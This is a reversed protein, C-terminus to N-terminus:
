RGRGSPKKMMKDCKHLRKDFKKDMKKLTKVEKEGRDLSKKVKLIQKDM